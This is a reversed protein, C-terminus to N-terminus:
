RQSEQTGLVELNFPTRCKPVHFTGFHLVTKLKSSRPVWSDTLYSQIKFPGLFPTVSIFPEFFPEALIWTQLFSHGISLTFLSKLLRLGARASCFVLRYFHKTIIKPSNTTGFGVLPNLNKVSISQRLVIKKSIGCSLFNCCCPGEHPTSM